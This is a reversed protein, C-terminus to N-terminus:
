IINFHIIKGDCVNYYKYLVTDISNGLSLLEMSFFFRLCFNVKMKNASNFLIMVM